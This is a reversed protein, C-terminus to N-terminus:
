PVLLALRALDSLGDRHGADRVAVLLPRALTGQGSAALAMALRLRGDDPYKPLGRQVAQQMLALGEATRGATYLNWGTAFGFNADRAALAQADPVPAALDATAQAQVRQRLAQHAAARAGQGLLGASYGAELVSRAEHVFGAQVALEALEVLAEGDTWAGQRQGMRLTDIVLRADFGAQGQLRALRDAWIQPKPHSALLAELVRAYGAEDKMKLLNSAQLRLQPEGPAEGAARQRSALDDLVQAAAPHQGQLYLAQALRLRAIPTTIGAQLSQQGWRVAREYDKLAYATNAAQDMLTARLEPEFPEAALAAEVSKLALPLDRAGTAALFRLREVLYLEFPTKGPVADALRLQNLAEAYNRETLAKQTAQLTPATEPRMSPGAPAPASAAAQAQAAGAAGGVALVIVLSLLKM